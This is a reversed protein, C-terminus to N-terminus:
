KPLTGKPYKLKIESVKDLWESKEREGRQYEFFIPDSEEIYARKRVSSVLDNIQDISPLAPDVLIPNGNKDSSITKGSRQGEFLKLYLQDSIEIGDNPIMGVNISSDFFANTSKSYYITM